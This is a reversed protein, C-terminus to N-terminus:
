SRGDPRHRLEKIQQYLRKEEDSLDPPIDIVLRAYENGRHGGKEPLGKGRLRLRAGARSGQPVTMIVPGDLTPVTVKDGLAAQEPLLRVEVELDSGKVTYVPHTLLHVKLYLDGRAGGSIGDGGQGRLRIRGSDRIGAPIKIELTKTEPVQGTGGCRPCFGREKAGTGGCEPCVAGASLQIVKSIGHYAEELPLDIEAEM